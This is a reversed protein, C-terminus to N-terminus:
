GKLRRFFDFISKSRPLTPEGTDPLGENKIIAEPVEEFLLRAKEQGLKKEVIKRAQPLSAFRDQSNHSDSAVAHILNNDLFREAATREEDGYLGTLSGANLQALAGEVVLEYLLEPHRQLVRNREPHAIIPTFGATMMDFIIEKLNPVIFDLSFELLVYSSSNITLIRPFEKLLDLTRETLYLEAGPLIEVKIGEQRTKEKLNEILTPIEEPSKLKSIHRDYHPTAVVTDTGEQEFRRLMSLAEEVSSPGDDVGPLIHTHIDVM